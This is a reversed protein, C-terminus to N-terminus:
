EKVSLFSSILDDEDEEDEEDGVMVMVMLMVRMMEKGEEERIIRGPLSSSLFSHFSSEWGM